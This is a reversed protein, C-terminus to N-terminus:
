RGAPSPAPPGRWGPLTRTGCMVIAKMGQRFRRETAVLAETSIMIDANLLVVRENHKATEIAHAHARAMARMPNLRKQATPAPVITIEYDGLARAIMVPDDTQVVYRVGITGQYEDRLAALAARHTPLVHRIFVDIYRRGWCPVAVIIDRSM